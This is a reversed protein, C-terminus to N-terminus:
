ATPRTGTGLPPRPGLRPRNPILSSVFVLLGVILHNWLTAPTANSFFLGSLVLWAGLVTNLYRLAPATESALLAVAAIFLGVSIANWFQGPAHPWFFASLM